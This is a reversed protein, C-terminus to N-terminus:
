IGQMCGSIGLWFRNTERKASVLILKVIMLKPLDIVMIIFILLIIHRQSILFTSSPFFNGTGVLFRVESRRIKSWHKEVSVCLSLPSSPSKHSRM